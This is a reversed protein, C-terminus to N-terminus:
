SATWTVTTSWSTSSDSSQNPGTIALFENKQQNAAASGTSGFLSDAAATNSLAQFPGAGSNSGFNLGSSSSTTEFYEDTGPLRMPGSPGSIFQPGTCASSGTGGFTCLAWHTANDAPVMDAGAVSIAAPTNGNTVTVSPTSCGGNPFNLQSGTSSSGGGLFVNSFCNGYSTSTPGVTISKVAPPTVNLSVSVGGTTGTAFAPIAALAALVTM